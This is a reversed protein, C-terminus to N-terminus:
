GAGTDGSRGLAGIVLAAGVIVLIGPFVYSSDFAPILRQLLFWGGVFVLVIGAVIGGNGRRARRAARRAQREDWRAQNPDPAAPAAEPLGLPEEPVVIAAIIYLLLGVGGALILLAWVLRVVSSDIDFWEAMGGAVGFLM